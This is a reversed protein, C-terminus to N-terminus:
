DRKVVDMLSRRLQQNDVFLENVSKLSQGGSALMLMLPMLLDIFPIFLDLLYDHSSIFLHLQTGVNIFRM